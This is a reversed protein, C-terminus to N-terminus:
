YIFLLRQRAGSADVEGDPRALHRQGAGEAVCVVAHGKRAMVKEIQSLLSREGQL